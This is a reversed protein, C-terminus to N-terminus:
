QVTLSSYAEPSYACSTEVGSNSGFVISFDSAFYVVNFPAAGWCENLHADYPSTGSMGQAHVDARGQGDNKWRSHISFREDNNWPKHVAFSLEGGGTTNNAYTYAINDRQTADKDDKAGLFTADIHAPGVNTYAVNLVGHDGSPRDLQQAAEFDVKFTGSGHHRQAGPTGDGSLFVIFGSGPKSKPEGSLEYHFVEGNKTVVLKFSNADLPSSGPGWTCSNAAQSCSTPENSVIAEVLGLVWVTGINFTAAVGATTDFWQSSQGVTSSLEPANPARSAQASAKPSGIQTESAGPMADRIQDKLAGGGCAAAFVLALSLLKKM